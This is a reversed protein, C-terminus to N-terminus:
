FKIGVGFDYNRSKMKIITGTSEDKYANTLDIKYIFEAFIPLNIFKELELGTGFNLGLVMNKFELHKLINDSNNIIKLRLDPGSLFYFYSSEKMPYLKALLPVTLFYLKSYFDRNGIYESKDPAYEKIHIKYRERKLNLGITFALLNYKKFKATEAYLGIVMSSNINLDGEFPKYPTWNNKSNIISAKIGMKEITQCKAESNISSVTVIFVLIIIKRYM